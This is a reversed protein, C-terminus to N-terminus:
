GPVFRRVIDLTIERAAERSVADSELAYRLWLGDAAALIAQAASGPDGVGCRRLSDGLHELWAAQAAERVERLRPEATAEMSLALWAAARVDTFVDAAFMVAVTAELAVAPDAAPDPATAGTWELRLANMTEVLLDLKSSFYHRVMGRSVGAIDTVTTVSTAGMGHRHISEITAEILARRQASETSM